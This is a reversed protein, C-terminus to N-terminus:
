SPLSIQTCGSVRNWHILPICGIFIALALSQNYGYTTMCLHTGMCICTNPYVHVFVVCFCVLVLFYIFRIYFNYIILLKTTLNKSLVRYYYRNPEMFYWPLKPNLAWPLSNQGRGICCNRRWWSGITWAIRGAISWFQTIKKWEDLLM